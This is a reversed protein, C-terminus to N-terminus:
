GTPWTSPATCEGKLAGRLTPSGPMPEITMVRAVSAGSSGCWHVRRACRALTPSARTPPPVSSELPSMKMAKEVPLLRGAAM